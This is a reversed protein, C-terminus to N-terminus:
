RGDHKGRLYRLLENFARGRHSVKNKEIFGAEGFSKGLDYSYFIKDYGFQSLEGTDEELIKGDVRGHFYHVDNDEILCIITEFYAERNEIGKLRELLKLRNKEYTADEGSYRASYIGPEGGLSEVFLGTDDAIISYDKVGMQDLIDKYGKAKLYANEKLTTGSEEVDYSVNFDQLSKVTINLNHDFILKKFEKVKDKNQTALVFTM